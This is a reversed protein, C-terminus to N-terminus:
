RVSTDSLCDRVEKPLCRQLTLPRIKNHQVRWAGTCTDLNASQERLKCWRLDDIDGAIRDRQASIKFYQLWGVLDLCQMEDVKERLRIVLLRYHLKAAPWSVSLPCERSIPCRKEHLCNTSTFM